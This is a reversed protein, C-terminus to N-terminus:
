APGAHPDGQAASAKRRRLERACGKASRFVVPGEGELTGHFHRGRLAAALRPLRPTWEDAPCPQTCDAPTPAVHGIGIAGRGWGMRDAVPRLWVGSCRECRREGGGMCTQTVTSTGACVPELRYLYGAFTVSREDAASMSRDVLVEFCGTGFGGAEQWRGKEDRQYITGGPGSETIGGRGIELDYGSVRREDGEITVQRRWDGHFGDGSMSGDVAHCTGDLLVHVRPSGGADFWGVFRALAAESPDVESHEALEPLVSLAWEWTPPPEPTEPTPAPESTPTREPAPAPEPSRELAGVVPGTYGPAVVPGGPDVAAPRHCALVSLLAPLLLPSRVLTM